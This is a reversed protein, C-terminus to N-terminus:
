GQTKLVFKRCVVAKNINPTSRPFSSLPCHGSIFLSSLLHVSLTRCSLLICFVGDQLVSVELFDCFYQLSARCIEWKVHLLTQLWKLYMKKLFFPQSCSPSHGQFCMVYIQIIRMFLWKSPFLFAEYIIVLMSKAALSHIFRLKMYSYRQALEQHRWSEM